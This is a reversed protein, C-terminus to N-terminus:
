NLEAKLSDAFGQNWAFRVVRISSGARISGNEPRSGGGESPLTQAFENVSNLQVLLLTLQGIPLNQVRRRASISPSIM